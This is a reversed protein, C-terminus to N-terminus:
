IFIRGLAFMAGTVLLWPLIVTAAAQGGSFGHIKRFGVIMVVLGWWMFLDGFYYAAQYGASLPDAGSMLVAPSFSVGIVSQKAFVLPLRLLSGLGYPILFSWYTVGLVQAFSGQGGALKSFLLFVLVFIFTVIVTGIGAFVGATVRSAITPSLAREYQEQFQEEDMMRMLRSDRMLELQEPSAIQTTLATFVGMVLVILLAAPLWRPSERVQEMARDPSTFVAILRSFLSEREM